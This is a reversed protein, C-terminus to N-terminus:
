LHGREFYGAKVFEYLVIEGAAVSIVDIPIIPILSNLPCSLFRVFLM